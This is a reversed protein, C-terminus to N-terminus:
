EVTEINSYVPDLLALVDAQRAFHRTRALPTGDTMRCIEAYPGGPGPYIVALCDEATLDAPGHECGTHCPVAWASTVERIHEQSETVGCHEWAHIVGRDTLIGVHAARKRGVRYTVINGPRASALPIRLVHEALGRIIPEDPGCSWDDRWAPAAVLAGCLESHIGRVLGICDAGAGRLAGQRVFPTGIWARAHAAVLAPNLMNSLVAAGRKTLTAPPVTTM